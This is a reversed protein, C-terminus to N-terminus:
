GGVTLRNDVGVAGGEFANETAARRQSWSDVTGTLTAVGNSVSVKVSDQDIFPSWWLEDRIERAIASDRRWLTSPVPDYWDYDYLSWEDVFPDYAARESRRIVSLDNDIRRVGRVDAALDDAVAREFWTDVRGSLDVIGDAVGVEIQSGEVFPNAALANVIRQEIEADPLGNPARVRMRDRVSRVGTVSLARHIAARKDGLSEVTGRLTAIGASVTVDFTNETITPDLDLSRSVAAAIQQDTSTKTPARAQRDELMTPDVQLAESDVTKTGVTWAISEARRKEAASGVRGSLTVQGNDVSVKVASADVYADHRLLGQVDAAIEDDRRVLPHSVKLQNSVETVGSVAAVIDGALKREAWSDVTGTLVTEGGPKATVNIEYSETASDSLLAQTIREQLASADRPMRPLVIIQNDVSRVGRVTEALRTAREKALLNSVTGSLKVTGDTTSVDIQDLSVVPDHYFENEVAYTIDRQTLKREDSGATVQANDSTPSRDPDARRRDQQDGQHNDPEAYAFPVSALLLATL